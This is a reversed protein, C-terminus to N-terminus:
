EGTGIIPPLGAFATKVNELDPDAVHDLYGSLSGASNMGALAVIQSLTLTHQNILHVIFTTRLRALSLSTRGDDGQMLHVKSNYVGKSGVLPQGAPTHQAWYSLWDAHLGSVAMQPRSGVRDIAVGGEPTAIVSEPTVARITRGDLGAGLGAVLAIQFLRRHSKPERHKAAEHLSELQWPTYPPQKPSKAIKSQRYPWRHAPNAIRGVAILTHRRTRRTGAKEHRAVHREIARMTLHEALPPEGGWSHVDAAFRALFGVTRKAQTKTEPSVQYVIDLVSGGWIAWEDESLCRPRYQDLSARVENSM